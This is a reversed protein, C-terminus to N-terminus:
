SIYGHEFNLLLNASVTEVFVKCEGTMEQPVEESICHGSVSQFNFTISKPRDAITLYVHGSVSDIRVRDNARGTVRIEGSTTEFNCEGATFREMTLNGSVTRATLHNSTASFSLDGSVSSVDLSTSIYLMGSTIKGSTTSLTAKGAAFNTFIINGSTNSLQLDKVVVGHSDSCIIDGSVSSCRITSITANEPIYIKIQPRKKLPTKFLFFRDDKEKIILTEDQQSVTIPINDPYTYECAFSDLQGFVFKVDANITEVIIRTFVTNFRAEKQVIEKVPPQFFENETVYEEFARQVDENYFHIGDATITFADDAILLAGAFCTAIGVVVLVASIIMLLSTKKM